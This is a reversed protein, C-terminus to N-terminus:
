KASLDVNNESSKYMSWNQRWIFENRDIRGRWCLWNSRNGKATASQNNIIKSHYWMM